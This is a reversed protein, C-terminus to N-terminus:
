LSTDTPSPRAPRSYSALSAAIRTVARKLPVVRRYPIRALCLLYLVLATPNRNSRLNSRANELREPQDLRYSARAIRDRLVADWERSYGLHKQFMRIDSEWARSGITHSLSSPHIRYRASVYSSFAFEFRRAIRLWMDWDEYALSEDYPGIAEYCERRIMTTMTPVFCVELLKAYIDGEPPEDFSRTDRSSEFFMKPLPDGHVDMLYADGYLVAVSAPLREFQEVQVALKEPLWVDDTSVSSVYAGRAHSLTENKTRCIGQNEDHLVLTCETGTRAMWDRILSVSEDSSCDDAIILQVNPYTQARISELCELVFREHNLCTAIVTVLPPSGPM